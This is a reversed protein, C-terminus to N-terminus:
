VAAREMRYGTAEIIEGKLDFFSADSIRVKAWSGLLSEDLPLVVPFYNHLRGTMSGPRFSKEVILADVTRGIYRAHTEYGIDAIIEMLMSSRRKKVGDSVQPLSASLTHPRISYQALHVREFRLERVLKVTNMFAEEDEGPHGVIIDTAFMSDPYRSKVRSHIYRFEDVTYKRNMVKLVRDDGSQVPIHFFKYVRDSSYADLLDDLIELALEPTMMGIRIMYNGEVKDLIMNVLDAISPKGPLDRGYAAVDLGTLRIEKVGREVLSKVADVILRPSYSRLERRAIKSICYSCDNLCGESVMITAVRGARAPLPIRSTDRRGKLLTIRGPSRVAELIRDVNQPSLLSAEPLVRAVLGPRAKVLCGAVIIRKGRHRERIEALREAIRQETDLRVACTNVIIFDADDISEVRTYGSEELMSEMVQSDFEALACGYTEIYYRRGDAM